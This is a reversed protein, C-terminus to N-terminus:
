RGGRLGVSQLAFIDHCLMDVEKETLDLFRCGYRFCSTEGGLSVEQRRVIEAPLVHDASNELLRLGSFTLNEGVAYGQQSLFGFGTISIDVIKCDTEETGSATRVACSSRVSLRFNGRSESYRGGDKLRIYWFTDARQYATGYLLIVDGRAQAHLLAIKVDTESDESRLRGNKRRLDIRLEKTKEDCAGITGVFLFENEVTTVECLAGKNQLALEYAATAKEAQDSSM